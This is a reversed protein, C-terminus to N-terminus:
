SAFTTAYYSSLNGLNSETGVKALDEWSVKSFNVEFRGDMKLKFIYIRREKNDSKMFPM